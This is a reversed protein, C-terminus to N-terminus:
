RTTAIRHDRRVAARSLPLSATRSRRLRNNGGDAIYLVGAGDVGVGTNWGLQASTAPGGDGSYGWTGTGAITTIIGTTADVKRIRANGYDGIYINGAADVAIQDTRAIRAATAPGGDGSFGAVGSGAVTRIIGSTADIRRVKLNDADAIYIDNAGDVAVGLDYGFQANFRRVATAAPVSRAARLRRYREPPRASEACVHPKPCCCTETTISPWASRIVSAPLRRWAVTAM